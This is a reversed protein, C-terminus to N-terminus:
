GGLFGERIADNDADLLASPEDSTTTVEGLTLVYASDAIEAAKINSEVILMSISLERNIRLLAGTLAEVAVPALGLFPEDLLLLSPGAMLARGIALMQREGGSLTGARQDLREQVRPFIDFVPDMLSSEFRGSRTFAGLRLNDRVTLDRFVRGGEPVLQMGTAVRRPTDLKEISTEGFTLRDASSSIVGMLAALTSTKGAGNAGLILSITGADM